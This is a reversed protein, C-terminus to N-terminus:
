YSRVSQFAFSNHSRALIRYHLKRALMRFRLTYHDNVGFRIIM